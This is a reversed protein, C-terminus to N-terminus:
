GITVGHAACAAGVDAPAFNGRATLRDLDQFMPALRSASSSLVLVRAARATENRYGHRSGAPAFIFSGAGAVRAGADTDLTLEGEIVFFSEDDHDHVHPPVGYGAPVEHDAVFLPGAAGASKVLMPAGLVNLAQGAQPGVIAIQPEAM